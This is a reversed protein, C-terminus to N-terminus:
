WKAKMEKELQEECKVCLAFSYIANIISVGACVWCFLDPYTNCHTELIMIGTVACSFIGVIAHLFMKIKLLKM